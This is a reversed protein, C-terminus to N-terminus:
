QIKYILRLINQSSSYNGVTYSNLFMAALIYQSVRKKKCAVSKKLGAKTNSLKEHIWSWINSLHQKICIVVM